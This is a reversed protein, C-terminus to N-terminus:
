NSIAPPYCLLERMKSNIKLVINYPLFIALILQAYMNNLFNGKLVVPRWNSRMFNTTQIEFESTLLMIAVKTLYYIKDCILDKKKKQNLRIDTHLHVSRM